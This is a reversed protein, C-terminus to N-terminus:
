MTTRKNLFRMILVGIIASSTTLIVGVTQVSVMTPIMMSRREIFKSVFNVFIMKVNNFYV